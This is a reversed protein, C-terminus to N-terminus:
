TFTKDGYQFSSSQKEPMKFLLTKVVLEQAKQKKCVDSCHKPFFFYGKKIDSQAM